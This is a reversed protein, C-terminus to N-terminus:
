PTYKWIATPSGVGGVVYINTADQACAAREGITYPIAGLYSWTNSNIDYRTVVKDKGTVDVTGGLLYIGGQMAGHAHGYSGHPPNALASSVNAVMDIKRFQKQSQYGTHTYINTGLVDASGLYCPSGGLGTPTYNSWAAGVTNYSRAQTQSANGGFNYFLNNYVVGAHRDTAVGNLAGNAWTNTAPDYVRVDGVYATTYGGYIYMKGNIAAATHYRRAADSAKTVVAGTTLDVEYLGGKVAFGADQGGFVYMKNGIVCASAGNIAVPLDGLKTWSDTITPADGILELVPRWSYGPHTDTPVQYWMGGFGPYGRTLPGGGYQEQCLCLEGTGTGGYWGVDDYTLEGWREGPGSYLATVRSFLTDYEGAALDAPDTNSGTMLRVKYLKGGIALTKTGFVVGLDNLTTWLISVRFPKKAIYVTKGNNVFKLWGPNPDYGLSGTTLGVTTALDPASILDEPAVVGKFPTPPITSKKILIPRWGYYSQINGPPAYWIGKIHYGGSSNYWDNGRVIIGEAIHDACISFVGDGLDTGDTSTPLGLMPNTYNGWLLAEPIGARDTQDYVNYMYRNWEGGANSPGYGGSISAAGYMDRIVYVTGAINIEGNVSAYAEANYSPSIGYRLPKKAIYLELGNDEIFHLWGADTNISVGGQYNIAAALTDGTIFSAAPVVGKFPTGPNFPVDSDDAATTKRGVTLLLELM